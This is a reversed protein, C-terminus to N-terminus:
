LVYCMDPEDWLIAYSHENGKENYEQNTQKTNKFTQM